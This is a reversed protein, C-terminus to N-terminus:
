AGSDRESDAAADAATAGGAGDVRSARGPLPAGSHRLGQRPRARTFV